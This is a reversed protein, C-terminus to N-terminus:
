STGVLNSVMHRAAFLAFRVAPAATWAQTEVEVRGARLAEVIGEVTPEADIWSFTRSNYPLSHTDSTGVLPLEYRRAVRAARRNLNLGRMYLSCWEIADFLDIHKTLQGMLSNPTPYYPHPAIFVAGRRGIERLEDFTQAALHDPHPNLILVHRLEIFKEIGPVLIVGHRRAYEALSANYANREHCTIALVDFGQEAVADILEEASHGLQDYPDDATHTHLDAKLRRMALLGVRGYQAGM